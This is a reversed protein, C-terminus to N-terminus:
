AVLAQCETLFSFIPTGHLVHVELLCTNPQKINSHPELPEEENDVPQKRSTLEYQILGSLCALPFGGVSGGIM